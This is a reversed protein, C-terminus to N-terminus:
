KGHGVLKGVYITPKEIVRFSTYCLCVMLPTIGVVISWFNLASLAKSKNQSKFKTLYTITLKLTLSIAERKVL